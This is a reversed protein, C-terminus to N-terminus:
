EGGEHARQIADIRSYVRQSLEAPFVSVLDGSFVVLEDALLDIDAYTIEFTSDSQSDAPFRSSLHYHSDSGPRVSITAVNKSALFDLEDHLRQAYNEPIREFIVQPIRKPESVIRSLLFTREATAEFDHALLYWNGHWNTLALPAVKRSAPKIQGPKLYDFTVVAQDDLAEELKAFSRDTTRIRPAVGILPEDTDIGLSKIKTIAHISDQSLSAQRWAAAALHLLAMEEPSFSLDAPLDYNRRSVSYRVNHTEGEEGPFETTDIVVGLDRLAAKDREFLKDLTPNPRHDYQESYGRVTRLIDAKTLGERSAILALILSFLRDEKKISTSRTKGM